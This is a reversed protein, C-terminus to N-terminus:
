ETVLYYGKSFGGRQALKKAQAIKAEDLTTNYRHCFEEVTALAVHTGRTCGLKECFEYIELVDGCEEMAEERTTTRLLEGMEEQLKKFAELRLYTGELVIIRPRKGTDKEIIDPIDDRVLKGAPLPGM